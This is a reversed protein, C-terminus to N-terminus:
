SSVEQSPFRTVRIAMRDELSGLSGLAVTEDGLRLPVDRAITLPIHDGPALDDLRTFSLEFEALIAELGIPIGSFPSALAAQDPTLKAAQNPASNSGALLVGLTDDPVAIFAEWSADNRAVIRLLFLQCDRDAAFPKLRSASESRVIVEGQPEDGDHGSAEGASARAIAKAIATAIQDLLLAASRPLQEPQEEGLAGEGGFSRDTLAVATPWDMSFLVTRNDSGCRLLSNAAVPGIRAFVQEGKMAKADALTVTPRGGALLSELDRSLARPFERQWLSLAEAREEPRPGRRALEDCHRALPRADAFAKESSLEMSM